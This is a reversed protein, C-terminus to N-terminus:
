AFIAAVSATSTKAGQATQFCVSVTKDTTMNGLHGVCACGSNPNRFHNEVFLRPVMPKQHSFSVSIHSLFKLIFFNEGLQPSFGDGL